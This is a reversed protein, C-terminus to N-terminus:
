VRYPLKTPFLASSTNVLLVVAHLLLLYHNFEVCSSHNYIIHIEVTDERNRKDCLLVTSLPLLTESKPASKAHSFAVALM